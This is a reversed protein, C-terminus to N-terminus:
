VGWGFISQNIAVLTIKGKFGALNRFILPGAENVKKSVGKAKNQCGRKEGFLSSFVVGGTARPPDLVARHTGQVPTKKRIPLRVV